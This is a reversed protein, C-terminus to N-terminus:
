NFLRRKTINFSTTHKDFNHTCIVIWGVDNICINKRQNSVAVLFVVGMCDMFFNLKTESIRMNYM